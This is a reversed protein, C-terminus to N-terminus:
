GRMRLQFARGPLFKHTFHLIICVFPFLAAGFLAATLMPIIPHLALDILSFFGWQLGFFSLSVILFGLWLMIFPQATLFKRQEGTIWQVLLYLFAHVGIPFGSLFDTVCGLVFVLWRPLLTPRYISWYYLAMLFFPAKFAGTLPYSVSVIGLIYLFLIVSYAPLMRLIAQSRETFTSFPIM